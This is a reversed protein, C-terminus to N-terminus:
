GTMRRTREKMRVCAACGVNRAKCVKVSIMHVYLAPKENGNAQHKRRKGKEGGIPRGDDAVSVANCRAITELGALGERVRKLAIEVLAAVFVLHLVSACAAGGGFVCDGVHIGDDLGV